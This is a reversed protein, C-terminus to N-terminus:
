AGGKPSSAGSFLQNTEQSPSIGPCPILGYRRTGCWVSQPKLTRSNNIVTAQTVVWLYGGEKALFRYAETVTQGKSFLDKFAKEIKECDLGHHFDYISKGIMDQSTFGALEEIRDDCFLFHMDMSHKSLFTKSDLPVEINSPHPIPEAVGVLFPFGTTSGQGPSSLEDSSESGSTKSAPSFSPNEDSCKVLLRGTFKMPKYTASKLNVNRGKSTLTCKLRLLQTRNEKHDLKGGHGESATAKDSDSTDSHRPTLMERIEEHDCPHAFEYISQGILEIQQLGLYKGVSESLYVIDGDHSLIFAFGELAKQYLHEWCDSNSAVDGQKKMVIDPNIIDVAEDDTHQALQHDTANLINYIKLMSISLRMISAKDLQSTVSDSLPLAQALESFIESEKGRRCRAADRSKEKRKESNKYPM